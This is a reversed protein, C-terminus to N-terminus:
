LFLYILLSLLLNGHFSRSKRKREEREEERIEKKREKEERRKEERRTEERKKKRRIRKENKFNIIEGLGPVRLFCGCCM